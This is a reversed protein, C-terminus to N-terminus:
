AEQHGPQVTCWVTAQFVTNSCIYSWVHFVCWVSVCECVYVFVHSKVEKYRLLCKLILSIHDLLSSPIFHQIEYLFPSPSTSLCLLSSWGSDVKSHCPPPSWQTYHLCQAWSNRGEYKCQVCHWIQMVFQTICIHCGCSLTQEVIWYYASLSSLSDIVSAMPIHAKHWSVFVSQFVICICFQTHYFDQPLCPNLRPLHSLYYKLTSGVPYNRWYERTM